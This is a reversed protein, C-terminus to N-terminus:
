VLMSFMWLTMSGSNRSSRFASNSSIFCIETILVLSLFSLANCSLSVDNINRSIFDGLNICNFKEEASKAAQPTLQRKLPLNHFDPHGPQKQLLFHLHLLDCVFFILLLLFVFCLFRLAVDQQRIGDPEDALGVAKVCFLDTLVEKLNQRLDTRRFLSLSFAESGIHNLPTERNRHYINNM